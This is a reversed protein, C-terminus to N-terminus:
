KSDPNNLKRKRDLSAKLIRVYDVQSKHERRGLNNSHLRRQLLIDPMVVFKLNNEKVRLYWDMFEGVKVHTSFVGVKEFVERKVLMAGAMYGPMANMPEKSNAIQQPDVDPNHFNQTHSLVLDLEPQQMLVQVQKELKENPWLDDGDLFAIYPQSAKILGTNRAASVGGNAQQYYQIKDGFKKVVESTNDSSGDDVVIIEHAPYTQDLACQIAEVIYTEINYTTIIVSIAIPKQNM